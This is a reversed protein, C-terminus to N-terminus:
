LSPFATRGILPGIIRQLSEPIFHLSKCILGSIKDIIEIFQKFGEIIDNNWIKNWINTFNPIIHNLDSFPICLIFIPRVPVEAAIKQLLYVAM